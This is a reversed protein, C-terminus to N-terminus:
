SILGKKQYEGLRYYLKRLSIGLQEATLVRNGDNKNLVELIHRQEIEELSLAAADDTPIAVASPKVPEQFELMTAHNAADTVIQGKRRKSARDLASELSGLSCPKTLFEVVDLHIAQRAADLDGFGTMIIAQIDSNNKRLQTLLEIGSAGPLNLDLILIDFTQNELLRNAAEASGVLTAHFGMEKLAQSLMNRLRMEDEVVLVNRGSSSPSSETKAAM